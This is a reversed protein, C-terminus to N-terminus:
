SGAVLQYFVSAVYGSSSIGNQIELNYAITDLDHLEASSITSVRSAVGQLVGLADSYSFTGDQTYSILDQRLQADSLSYIWNPTTM